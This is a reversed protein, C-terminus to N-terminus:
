NPLNLNRIEFTCYASTFPAMDPSKLIQLKDKTVKFDKEKAIELVDQLELFKFGCTLTQKHTIETIYCKRNTWGLIATIKYGDDSVYENCNAFNEIFEQNHKSNTDQAQQEENAQLQNVFSLHFMTALLVLLYKKM